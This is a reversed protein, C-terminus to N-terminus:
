WPKNPDIMEVVGDRWEWRSDFRDTWRVIAIGNSVDQTHDSEFRVVESPPISGAFRRPPPVPELRGAPRAPRYFEARRRGVKSLGDYSFQIEVLTMVWRSNNSITAILFPYSATKGNDKEFDYFMQVVVEVSLAEALQDRRRNAALEDAFRQREENFRDREAQQAADMRAIQAQHQNAADARARGTLWVTVIVTGLTIVAASATAVAVLIDWGSVGSSVHVVIPAAARM